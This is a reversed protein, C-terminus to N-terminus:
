RSQLIRAGEWPPGSSWSVGRRSAKQETTLNKPVMKARMKRMNLDQTLIQHFTVRNMNLESSIVRLTLRRDSRVLSRVREVNNYTKSFSTIGCSTQRGSTRPRRFFVQTKHFSTGQILFTRWLGKTFKWLDCYRIRWVKCFFSPVVNSLSKGTLKTIWRVFVVENWVSEFIAYCNYWNWIHVSDVAPTLRVVLHLPLCCCQRNTWLTSLSMLKRVCWMNNGKILLGEIQSLDVLFWLPYSWSKASAM